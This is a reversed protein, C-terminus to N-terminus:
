LLSLTEDWLASSDGAPLLSLARQGDASFADLRGPSADVRALAQLCLQLTHVGDAASLLGHRLSLRSPIMERRQGAAPSPLEVLLPSEERSFLEIVAPVVSVPVRCASPAPRSTFSAPVPPPRRFASPGTPLAFPALLGAWDAPDVDPHPCVQLCEAGTSDMIQIRGISGCCRCHAVRGSASSWLSTRLVLTDADDRAEGLGPTWDLAPFAALTVLRAAANRTQTVVLPLSGLAALLAPWDPSLPFDGESDTRFVTSFRHRSSLPHM